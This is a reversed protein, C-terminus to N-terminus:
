LGGGGAQGLADGFQTGTFGLQSRQVYWTGNSPRYVAYDAKGDGDYDGVVPKDTGAGFQSATFQNTALNFVYWTGNSPRWVALDAKGDGDFDAPQPIDDAAGFAFGTFGATTRNLYWTGNRYVALDTKGDGDYDAPVIKDNTDGFQSGAFGSASNLLYWFGGTPRFVSIDAKGDGDFDFGTHVTVTGAPGTLTLSYKGIENENSSTAEITYIGTEPLTFTGGSSPILANTGGGSDDDAVSGAGSPTHLVLYADFGTSNEAITIQQGATGSFTYLDTYYYGNSDETLCTGATLTGNLTQNYNIAKSACNADTTLSVTYAGTVGPNYSNVGIYYTDTSPLTIEGADMPIRSNGTNNTDDNEEITNGASDLLYLYTDFVSSSLSIAVPQGATGSFSYFNIYTGDNLLCSSTALTGNISQGIVIPISEDCPGTPANKGTAASLKKDFIKQIELSRGTPPAKQTQIHQESHLNKRYVKVQADAVALFVSGIVLLIFLVSFYVRPKRM